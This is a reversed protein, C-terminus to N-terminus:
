SLSSEYVRRQNGATGRSVSSCEPLQSSTEIEGSQLSRSRAKKNRSLYTALGISLLSAGLDMGAATGLSNGVFRSLPIAIVSLIVGLAYLELSNQGCKVLTRIGRMTWFHSEREPLALYIVLFLSLFHLIRLPRLRSKYSWSEFIEDLWVQMETAQPVHLLNLWGKKIVLSVLLFVCAVVLTKYRFRKVRSTLQHNITIVMGIFFLFQWAFPNFYWERGWPLRPLSVTQVGQSVCYLGFSVLIASIPRSGYLKLLGLMLPLVISYFCLIQTGYPQYLMAFTSFGRVATGVELNLIPILEPAYTRLALGIVILTGTVLLYVAYIQLSRRLVKKLSPNWGERELRKSYVRGFVIGSLFVFADSGDSYGCSIPTWYRVLWFGLLDEIHDFLVVFVAIGRLMDLRIDRPTGIPISDPLEAAPNM